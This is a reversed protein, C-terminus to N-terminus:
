CPDALRGGQKSANDCQLYKMTIGKGQLVDLHTKLVHYLQDKSKMHGDWTKWLFEDVIKTDYSSGGLSPEFPVMTYLYLQESAQVSKCNTAKKMNKAQV